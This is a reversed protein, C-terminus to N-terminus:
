ARSDLERAMTRALGMTEEIQSKLTSIYADKEALLEEMIRISEKQLHIAHEMDAILEKQEAIYLEYKKILATKKDM